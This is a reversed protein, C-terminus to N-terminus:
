ADAERHRLFQILGVLALAIGSCRLITATTNGRDLATQLKLRREEYDQKAAALQKQDAGTAHTPGHSHDSHSHDSHLHDGHQHSAASHSATHKLDHFRSAAQSYAIADDESWTTQPGILRACFLSAVVLLAGVLGLQLGRRASLALDSFGRDDSNDTM